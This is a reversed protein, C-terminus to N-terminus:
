RAFSRRVGSTDRRFTIALTGGTADAPRTWQACTLPADAADVITVPESPYAGDDIASAVPLRAIDDAGLRPPQNLGFSNTNRLIAAVVPSIPQLGERLVAYHRLSNDAGFSTVVAGVPAPVPLAYSTPEGPAPSSRRM